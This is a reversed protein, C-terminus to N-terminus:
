KYYDITDTVFLHAIKKLFIETQEIISHDNYFNMNADLCRKLLERGINIERELVKKETTMAELKFIGEKIEDALYFRWKEIRIAEPLRLLRLDYLQNREGFNRSIQHSHTSTFIQSNPFSKKVSSILQLHRAAEVHMEVNDICIVPPMYEKNLLTSFSKIIKREGASCEKHTITEYPKYVLFGLIYKKLIDAQVPDSSDNFINDPEEIEFGTVAGFLDKFVGWKERNLQFINLEQDYRAWYFLRYAILRIETPHDKIFGNKNIIIEYDGVSSQIQATILFDDTGYIGHPKGDIHRVSKGLIYKIQDGERGDFRTFLLQVAELITTKGSGNNGHFCIFPKCKGNLTFDFTEDEFCKFNQFRILKIKVDPVSNPDLSFNPLLSPPVEM